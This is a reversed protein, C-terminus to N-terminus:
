GAAEAADASEGDAAVLRARVLQADVGLTTAIDDFNGHRHASLAAPLPVLMEAVISEVKEEPWDPQLLHMLEHTLTARMEGPTNHRDLFVVADSKNTLGCRGDLNDALVLTLIRRQELAGILMPLVPDPSTVPLIM